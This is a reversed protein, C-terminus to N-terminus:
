RVSNGGRCRDGGDPQEVVTKAAEATAESPIGTVGYWIECLKTLRSETLRYREYSGSTAGASMWTIIVVSGRTPGERQVDVLGLKPAVSMGLEGDVLCYRGNGRALFVSYECGHNGCAQGVLLDELGDLDLDRRFVIPSLIRTNAEDVRYALAEDESVLRHHCRTDAACAAAHILFLFIPWGRHFSVHLRSSNSM